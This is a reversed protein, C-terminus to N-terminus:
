SNYTDYGGGLYESRMPAFRGNDYHERGTRDRFRADMPEYASRMPEYASRYERGRDRSRDGEGTLMRMKMLNNM